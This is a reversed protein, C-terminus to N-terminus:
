NKKVDVEADNPVTVSSDTELVVNDSKEKIKNATTTKKKKETVPSTAQGASPETPDYAEQAPAIAECNSQDTKIFFTRSIQYKDLVGYARQMVPGPPLRDRTMVWASEPHILHTNSSLM